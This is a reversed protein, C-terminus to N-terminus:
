CNRADKPTSISSLPTDRRCCIRASFRVSASESDAEKSAAESLTFAKRSLMESSKGVSNEPEPYPFTVSFRKPSYAPRFIPSFMVSGFFSIAANVSLAFFGIGSVAFADAMTDAALVAM